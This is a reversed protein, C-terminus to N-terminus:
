KSKMLENAARSLGGLMVNIRVESLHGAAATEVHHLPDALVILATKVYGRKASALARELLDVVESDPRPHTNFKATM